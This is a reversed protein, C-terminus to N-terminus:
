GKAGGRWFLYRAVLVFIGLVNATTGGILALLVSDDLWFGGPKWGEVFLLIFLLGLWVLILWFIRSAYLKREATDQQVSRLKARELEEKVALEREFALERAEKVAKDDSSRAPEASIGSLAVLGLDEGRGQDGGSKRPDGTEGQSSPM